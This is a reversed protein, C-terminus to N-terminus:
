TREPVGRTGSRERYSTGSIVPKWKLLINGICTSQKKEVQKVSTFTVIM